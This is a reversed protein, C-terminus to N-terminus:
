LPGFASANGATLTGGNVTTAGLYANATALTVAGAGTKTVGTTGGISGSGSVTYTKTTNDFTVSGPTVPVNLSIATTGTAADNFLVMDSVLYKTPTAGVQWNATTDIDWDATVDGDWTLPLVATINLDITSNTPNNVLTAVVGSPVAGLMFAGTGAGAVTGTYRLLPYTGTQFSSGSVNVMVMGNTTLATTNVLPNTGSAFNGISLTAGTTAGLVLNTTNWTGGAAGGIGLTTGDAVTTTGVATASPSVVLVGGNVTMNGTHTNVGTLYQTGTGAKTISLAGTGNVLNGAFNGSANGAGVTLTNAGVINTVTGTGNLADIAENANNLRFTASGLMMVDTTDPLVTAGDNQYIVGSNVVLSGVFDNTNNALTVRSNVAGGITITGVNGTFKGIYTTRDSSGNITVPRNLSVNGNYQHLGGAGVVAGLTVTGTGEATVVVNNLVTQAGTSLFAINNTGTGSDGLTITSNGLGMATANGSRIEGQSILAGGTYSNAQNLSLIGLGSKMVMAGGSISGGNFTYNQASNVTFASPQVTGTIAITQATAALDGFLLEDGTYFKGAALTSSVRFGDGANIHWSGEPAPRKMGDPIARKTKVATGDPDSGVEGPQVL